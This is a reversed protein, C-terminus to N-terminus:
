PQYTQPILGFNIDNSLNRHPTVPCKNGVGWRLEPAQFSQSMLPIPFCGRLFENLWPCLYGEIGKENRGLIQPKLYM